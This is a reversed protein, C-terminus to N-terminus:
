ADDKGTPGCSYNYKVFGQLIKDYSINDYHYFIYIYFSPIAKSINTVDWEIAQTINNRSDLYNNDVKIRLAEGVIYCITYVYKDDGDIIYYVPPFQPLVCDPALALLENEALIKKINGAYPPHKFVEINSYDPNNALLKYIIDADLLKIRSDIETTFFYQQLTYDVAREYTEGHKQLIENQFKSEIESKLYRNIQYGKVSVFDQGVAYVFCTLLIILTLATKKM